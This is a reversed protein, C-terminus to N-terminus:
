YLTKDDEYEDRNNKKKNTDEYHEDLLQSIVDDITENKEKIELIMDYSDQSIEINVM